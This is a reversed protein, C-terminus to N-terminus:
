GPRIQMHQRWCLPQQATRACEPLSLPVRRLWAWERKGLHLVSVHRSKPLRHCVHQCQAEEGWNAPSHRWIGSQEASYIQAWFCRESLCRTKPEPHSSLPHMVGHQHKAKEGEFKKDLQFSTVWMRFLTTMNSVWTPRLKLEWHNTGTIQRERICRCGSCLDVVTNVFIATCPVSWLVMWILCTGLVTEKLPFVILLVNIALEVHFM